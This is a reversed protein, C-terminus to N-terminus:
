EVLSAPGCYWDPLKRGTAPIFLRLMETGVFEISTVLRQPIRVMCGTGPANTQSM